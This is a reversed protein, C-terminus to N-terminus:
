NTLPLIKAASGTTSSTFSRMAFKPSITRPINTAMGVAIGSTGNILMNPLMAPLVQPEELSDDFNSKWDVTDM